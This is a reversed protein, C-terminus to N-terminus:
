PSPEARPREPTCTNIAEHRGLVAARRARAVPSLCHATKEWYHPKTAIELLAKLAAVGGMMWYPLLLPVFVAVRWGFRRGSAVLAGLLVLMQGGFLVALLVAVGPVEFLGQWPPVEMTVAAIGSILILPQLLFSLFGDLLLVNVAVMRGWGLERALLLPDRMHVAWTLMYGKIWRSRQRIWIVACGTAEEDTTSDFVVARKGARALRLGLDADETVNDPDWGGIARLIDVRFYLSTGGLPVPLRARSLGKLLLDFWLAYEIAICRTLLNDDPNYHSLRAQACAVDEGGAELAAVAKSIQDPDPADEADFIGVISGRVFPLAFNMAKPKTQPASAPVVLCDISTGATLWRAEAITEADNEELLIKIDLARAPYDIATLAAILAPLSEAENHVPVLISVVPTGSRPAPNAPEARVAHAILMVRLVMTAVFYPIFLLWLNVFAAAPEAVVAAVMVLAIGIWLVRMWRPFPSAASHHPAALRLGVTARHTLTSAYRATLHALIWSKPALRVSIKTPDMGLEDAAHLANAYTHAALVLTGNKRACPIVVHRCLVDEWGDRALDTQPEFRGEAGIGLMGVFSRVPKSRVPDTAEGERDSRDKTEIIDNPNAIM